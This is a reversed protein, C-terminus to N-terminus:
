KIIYIFTAALKVPFLKYGWTNPATREGIFYEEYNDGDLYQKQRFLMLGTGASLELNWRTSLNFIHGGSVGLALADGRFVNSKGTRAGLVLDYTAAFACVGVYERTLPRGNFWFRFEPQVALVKEPLGFPRYTGFVSVSVSTREGTVMELGIDPTLAVWSLANTKVALRQAAATRPFVAALLLGLAVAMLFHTSRKHTQRTM